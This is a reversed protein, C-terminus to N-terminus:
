KEKLFEKIRGVIFHVDEERLQPRIPLSLVEDSAAEAEPFDGRSHKLFEFCPQLHLPIPYYVGWGIGAEQLYQRLANRKAHRITFQHYVHYNGAATVPLRIGTNGLANLYVSAIRNRDNNWQDIRSLKVSLVAAQLADLRSNYGLEGHLGPGSLGCNRLTKIKEAVGAHSTVVMGGDGYGGLNKSPYFSFCGTLGMSGAPAQNWKAGFAQAADEILPLNYKKGLALFADMAACQGYLHVPLIAKTSPTIAAEVRLPDLNFTEPTIDCFVPRAGAKVIANATAFFTFPSTIVEDGEGIGIAKLSLLISDVGSAVGIAYRIGLKEAVAKEFADCAEGLVFQQSSLVKEIADKVAPAIESFEDKLHIFPIKKRGRTM